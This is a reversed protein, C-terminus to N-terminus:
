SAETAALTMTFTAQVQAAQPAVPGAGGAPFMTGAITWHMVSAAVFGKDLNVEITGNGSVKLEGGPGDSEIRQDLYAIRGAPRSEVRRLTVVSRAQLAAAAAGSLRLPIGGPATVTDGVKMPAEPVSSTWGYVATLLERQNYAPQNLEAPVELDALRGARDFV